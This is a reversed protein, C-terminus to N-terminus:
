THLGPFPHGAHSDDHLRRDEGHGGQDIFINDPKLNRHMLGQHHLYKLGTLMQAFNWRIDNMRTEVM